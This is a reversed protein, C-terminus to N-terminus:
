RELVDPDNPDIKMAMKLYQERDDSVTLSVNDCDIVNECDHRLDVIDLLQKLISLQEEKCLNM